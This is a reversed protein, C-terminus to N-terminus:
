KREKNWSDLDDAFKVDTVTASGVTGSMFLLELRDLFAGDTGRGGLMIGGGYNVYKLNSDKVDSGLDLTQGNTIELHIKGVADGDHNPALQLKKVMDGSAWSIAQNRDGAAQGRVPGKTNDSYTFQIGKMQFKTAWVEVGIVVLGQEWNTDCYPTGQIPTDTNGYLEPPAFPGSDCGAAHGLKALSLLSTIGLFLNQSSYRM